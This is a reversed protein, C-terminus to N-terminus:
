SLVAAAAQAAIESEEDTPVVVVPVAGSGITVPESPGVAARNADDDLEIGLHALSGCVEARLPADNEGVGATFVLAQVGPVVALYAGVYKRIRYAYIERALRAAADGADAKARVERMDSAGALGRLGSRSTLITEVEAPDLGARILHFPLAPDLDGSRTGMVLGELPSLGMSTDVSRGGSVATASAGNGLHCIILNEAGLYEGTRRTVYQCSTGHFGYRRVGYEAAVDLPLAYTAAVAPITAHFATDFVAVQPVDPLQTRLARIGALNVPNHLPALPSLEEIGAEVAADIVTPATYRTGGHVVRHGVALLGDLGGLVQLMWALAADHDKAPRTDPERGSHRLRAADSGIEEILGKALVGSGVDILQYKLSSSGSNIVLVPKM